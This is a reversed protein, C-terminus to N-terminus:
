ITKKYPDKQLIKPKFYDNELDERLNLAILKFIDNAM